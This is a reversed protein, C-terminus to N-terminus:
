KKVIKSEDIVWYWQGHDTLLFTTDGQTCARGSLYEKPDYHNIPLPNIRLDTQTTVYVMNVVPTDASSASYDTRPCLGQYIQQRFTILFGSKTGNKLILTPQGTIPYALNSHVFRKFDEYHQSILLLTLIAFFASTFFYLYQHAKTLFRKCNGCADNPLLHATIRYVLITALFLELTYIKIEWDSVLLLEIAHTSVIIALLSFSLFLCLALETPRHWKKKRACAIKSVAICHRYFFYNLLFIVGMELLINAMFFAILFAFSPLIIEFLDSGM